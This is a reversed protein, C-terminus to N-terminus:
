EGPAYTNPLASSTFASSTFTTADGALPYGGEAWDTRVLSLSDVGVSTRALLLNAPRVPPAGGCESNALLIRYNTFTFVCHGADV